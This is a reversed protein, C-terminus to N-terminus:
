SWSEVRLSKFSLIYESRWSIVIIPSTWAFKWPIRPHWSITWTTINKSRPPTSSPHVVIPTAIPYLTTAFLEPKPKCGNRRDHIASSCTGTRPSTRVTCQSRWAEAVFSWGKRATDAAFTMNCSALEQVINESTRNYRYHGLTSKLNIVLFAHLMFEFYVM